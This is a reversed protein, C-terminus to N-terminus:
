RVSALVVSAIALLAGAGRATTVPIGEAFHDWALSTIMQAAVLGVFVRSAGIHHVAWPLGAVLLFGFIGPLVWYWRFESLRLGSQFTFATGGLTVVLGLFMTAVITAVGTNLIAAPALGWRVAIQRNITAQIVAVAGLLVALAVFRM